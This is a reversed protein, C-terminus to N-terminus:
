KEVLFAKCFYNLFIMGGFFASLSLRSAAYRFRPSAFPMGPNWQTGDPSRFRLPMRASSINSASLAKCSKALSTTLSSMKRCSRKGNRHRKVSDIRKKQFLTLFRSAEVPGLEKVLVEVAKAILQEEDTFVSAKVQPGGSDHIRCSKSDTSQAKRKQM